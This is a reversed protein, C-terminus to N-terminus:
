GTCILHDSSVPSALNDISTAVAFLRRMALLAVGGRVDGVPTAILIPGSAAVRDELVVISFAPAPEPPVRPRHEIDKHAM